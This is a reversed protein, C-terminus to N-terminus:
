FLDLKYCLKHSQHCKEANRNSGSCRDRKNKNKAFSKLTTKRTTEMQYLAYIHTFDTDEVPSLHDPKKNVIKVKLCINGQKVM